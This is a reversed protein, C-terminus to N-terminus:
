SLVFPPARGAASISAIHPVLIATATGQHWAQGESSFTSAPVALAIQTQSKSASPKHDNSQGISRKSSPSEEMENRMIQLDDTASIVPFLMVLLCGLALLCQFANFKRSAPATRTKRWLWFAPAALLLWALNLLLEM